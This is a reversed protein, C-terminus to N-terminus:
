VPQLHLVVQEIDPATNPSGSSYPNSQDPWGTFHRTTYEDYDAGTWLPIFPQNQVFVQEIGQIAQMQTAQDSTSAYQNLFKDTTPDNWAVFNTKGQGIQSSNLYNNYLYYPTPGGVMGCFM